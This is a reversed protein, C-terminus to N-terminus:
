PLDKLGVQGERVEGYNEELWARREESSLATFSDFAQSAEETSLDPFLTSVDSTTARQVLFAAIVTQAETLDGGGNNPRTNQVLATALEVYFQDGLYSEDYIYFELTGDAKLRSPQDPVQTAQVPGGPVGALPTAVENAKTAVEPLMAEYAPHVCIDIREEQCVPDFGLRNTDAEAPSSTDTQMLLTAAGITVVLATGISFWSTAVRVRGRLAVLGLAIASVGLFWVAQTASVTPYLGYFADANPTAVPSLFSVLFFGIYGQLLYDAIAVLPATFLRPLFYGVAYGIASHMCLAFLGALVPGVAPAGWTAGWLTALILSVAVLVYSFCILAATAAWTTLDRAAASLPATVLLEEINQRRNRAAVWASLGAALPGVLVLAAQVSVSTHPWLWVGEPLEGIAAYGTVVVFLPLLWLALSRRLEIRFLSLRNEKM